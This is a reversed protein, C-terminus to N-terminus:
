RRKPGSKNKNGCHALFTNSAELPRDRGLFDDRAVEKEVAGAEALPVL